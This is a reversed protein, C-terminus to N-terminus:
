YTSVLLVMVRQYAYMDQKLKERSQVEENRRQEAKENNENAAFEYNGAGGRGATKLKDGTDQVISYSNPLTEYEASQEASRLNGMGGRGSNVYRQPEKALNNSRIHTESHTEDASRNAELDASIRANAQEVAQINGTGGRGYPAM